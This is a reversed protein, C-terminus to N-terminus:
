FQSAYVPELDANVIEQLEANVMRNHTVVEEQKLDHVDLSTIVNGLTNTAVSFSNISTMELFISANEEFEVSSNLFITITTNALFASAAFNRQFIIPGTNDTGVYITYQVPLTASFSGAEHTITEVVRGTNAPCVQGITTNIIESTAPGPFVPDLIMKDLFPTTLFATGNNDFPIEPILAFLQPNVEALNKTRIFSGTASISLAEGIEVSGGGTQMGSLNFVGDVGAEVRVFTGGDPFRFRRAIATTVLGDGNTYVTNRPNRLSLDPGGSPGQTHLTM